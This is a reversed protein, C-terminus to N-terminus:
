SKRRIKKLLLNISSIEPSKLLYTLLFYATAGLAIRLLHALKVITYEQLPKSILIIIAMFLSGLAIKLFSSFFAKYDFKSIYKRLFTFQLMIILFFGISFGISFWEIGKQPAIFYTFIAILTMGSINIIMPTLTNKLAFFSRAFIHSLSEFPISIAFFLLIIGTLAISKETFVGGSLILDVIENSLLGIGVASPITFFLIRQITTQISKTYAIKNGNSISSSIYPFAATAFAIGFLSVAFSQINRAFNFAALGGEIMKMGVFAFIYMNIQWAILSITRPIMLGVIKKFGPHSFSLQAKYRYGTFFTDIIRVICHLVAGSLVGVAASYVGLSNGFFIVGLIIGLNYLIPSIAYASFHKYSMLVNGLTNSIAFFVASPLMIRTMNIINQQMEPHIHSFISPIIRDMFAFALIALFAILLTGGTLITNAIKFAEKKDKILYETFIPLFAAALAGAIFLNFLLDPILFSANYTDTAATTGFNTAIIRDRYLGIAYSLLSSFSVIVSAIGVNVPKFIRTQM